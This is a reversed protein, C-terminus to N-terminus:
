SRATAGTALRQYIDEIARFNGAWDGRARVIELNRRGYRANREPDAALALVADALAADDGRPVIHGNEGTVIWELNSPVDTLLASLGAAMAELLSVSTGDSYSTSVYLDAAYLYQLLQERPIKGTWRIVDGLGSGEALAKM